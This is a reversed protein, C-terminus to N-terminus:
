PTEAPPATSLQLPLPQLKLSDAGGLTDAASGDGYATINQGGAIKISDTGKGAYFETATSATATTATTKIALTDNGDGATVTTSVLSGGIRISDAGDFGQVDIKLLQANRLPTIVLFFPTQVLM